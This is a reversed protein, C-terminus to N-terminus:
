PMVQMTGMMGLDAHGLLHCHYLFRGPFGTFRMILRVQEGPPITVSDKWGAEVPAPAVGNRDLIQFQVLHTHFVHPIPLAGVDANHVTWVETTGLRPRIDVRDPDFTKGNIQMQGIAPDFGLTFSRQVTSRTPRLREVPMLKSPLRDQGKARVVDFRMVQVTAKGFIDSNLVVQSGVPYKSFDVIVEVRESPALAVSTAKVPAPLLGGDTGIVHLPDGAGLKLTHLADHSSGNLLRFRYRRQEVTFRPQAKGNVVPIDGFFEGKAPDPLRLTGDTNISRDFIMLPVDYRGSPLGLRREAPDELLYLGNLGQYTNFSEHHHVHDHFWLTAARQRNPYTFLRSAGPKIEQGPLGDSSSPVKGGHLHVALDANIRNTQRVVVPRNVRARIVPGPFIGDYGWVPTKLGPLIEQTGQRMTIEYYDTGGSTYRPRLVPPITLKNTFATSHAPTGAVAAAAPGPGSFVGVLREAPLVAAAGALVGFKLVDRRSPM